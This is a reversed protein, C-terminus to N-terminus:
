DTNLIPDGLNMGLTEIADQFYCKNSENKGVGKVIIVKEKRTEDHTEDSLDVGNFFRCKIVLAKFFLHRGIRFRTLTNVDIEHIDPVSLSDLTKLTGKWFFIRQNTICIWSNIKGLYPFDYRIAPSTFLFEEGEQAQWNIDSIMSDVVDRDVAQDESWECVLFEKDMLAKPISM